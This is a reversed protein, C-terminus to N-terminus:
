EEDSNKITPDEFGSPNDRFHHAYRGDISFAKLPTIPRQFVPCLLATPRDSRTPRQPPAVVVPEEIVPPPLMAVSPFSSTQTREQGRRAPPPITEREQRRKKNAEKMTDTMSNWSDVLEEADVPVEMSEQSPTKPATLARIIEDALRIAEAARSVEPIGQMLVPNMLALGTFWERMSTGAPAPPPSEKLQSRIAKLEMSRTRKFPQSSM